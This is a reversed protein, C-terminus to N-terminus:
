SFVFNGETISLTQLNEEPIIIGATNVLDILLSSDSIDLVKLIETVNVNTQSNNIRRAKTIFFDTKLYSYFALAKKELIQNEPREFSNKFDFIQNKLYYDSEILTTIMNNFKSEETPLVFDENPKNPIYTVTNRGITISQISSIVKLRFYNLSKYAIVLDKTDPSVEASTEDIRLSHAICSNFHDGRSYTSDTFYGRNEFRNNFIANNPYLKRHIFALIQTELIKSSNQSIVVPKAESSAKFLITYNSFIENLLKHFIYKDNITQRLYIFNDDDFYNDFFKELQWQIKGETFYVPPKINIYTLNCNIFQNTFAGYTIYASLDGGFIKYKQALYNEGDNLKFLKYEPFDLRVKNERNTSEIHEFTDQINARLTNSYFNELLTDQSNLTNYKVKSHSNTTENHKQVLNYCTEFAEKKIGETFPLTDYDFEDPKPLIIHIEGKARKRALAQVISNTGGSFIGYYNKFENKTGNPPFIIVFAHNEKEISVGTKFNTGVNIKDKRYRSKPIGRETRQNDTLDSVCKNINSGYKKFLLEGVGSTKNICIEEALKKSYCLIDINLGRDIIDEVVGILSGLTNSYKRAHDYHLHLSSQKELFRTRACEIIQIKNDTLEALYEIVVKSAECYTASLIINKHIINKWKWLSFVYKEKFNHYADHIEDYIFVAKTDNRQCHSILSNLYIRKKESNIFADEGPNGLLTNVTIIQIKRGIPNIDSTEGIFNYKYIQSDPIDTKDLIEQYYQEVLSVFPSAVFILYDQEDEYFRKITQIIAYSKGNGVGANVVITNQHELSIQDQLAENIFGQENPQIIIKERNNEVEFYPFDSPNIEKFEIPFDQFHINPLEM